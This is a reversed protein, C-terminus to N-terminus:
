ELYMHLIGDMITYKVLEGFGGCAFYYAYVAYWTDTPLLIFAQM